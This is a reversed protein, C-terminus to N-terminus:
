KQEVTLKVDIKLTSIDFNSVFQSSGQKQRFKEALSILDVKTNQMYDVFNQVLQMAQRQVKDLIERQLDKETQVTLFGNVHFDDTRALKVGLSLSIQVGNHSIKTKVDKQNVIFTLKEQNHEVIFEEGSVDKTLLALAKVNNADLLDVFKNKQFVAVREYSFYGQTKQPNQQDTNQSAVFEVHNVFGDCTLEKQSRAYELLSKTPIAISNAQNQLASVIALSVSSTLAEGCNLLDFANGKACCITSSEKFNYSNIFFDIIQSFDVKKYLNEGLILLACQGLSAEKGTRQSVQQIAQSITQGKVTVTKSFTGVQESGNGPSVVEATLVLLNQQDLDLGMGIIVARSLIDNSAFSASILVVALAVLFIAGIRKINNM